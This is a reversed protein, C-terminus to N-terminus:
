AAGEGDPERPLETLLVENTTTDREAIFWARCGSRHFWWERQVGARNRRFYNYEGLEKLTPRERPRSSIEGGYGFDTVERTGCNPCTLLFSVKGASAVDTETITDM